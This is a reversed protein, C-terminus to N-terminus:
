EKSWLSYKILKDTKIYNQSYDISVTLWISSCVDTFMTRVKAADKITGRKM